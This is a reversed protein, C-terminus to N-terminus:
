QSAAEEEGGDSELPECGLVRGLENLRDFRSGPLPAWCSKCHDWTPGHGQKTAIRKSSDQKCDDCTAGRGLIVPAFPGEICANM